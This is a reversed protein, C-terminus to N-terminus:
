DRQKAPAPRRWAVMLGLLGAGLLAASAPEPVSVLVGGDVRHLSADATAVNFSFDAVGGFVGNSWFNIVRGGGIDFMLGYIDVFTGHGDYDSATPPSGGAWYL